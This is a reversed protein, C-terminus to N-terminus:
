AADSCEILLRGNRYVTGLLLRNTQLQISTKTMFNTDEHDSLIKQTPLM